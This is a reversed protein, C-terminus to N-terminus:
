SLSLDWTQHQIGGCFWISHLSFCCLFFFFCLSLFSFLCHRLIPRISFPSLRYDLALCHCLRFRSLFLHWFSCGVPRLDSFCTSSLNPGVRSILRTAMLPKTVASCLPFLCIALFSFVASLVPFAKVSTVHTNPFTTSASFRSLFATSSFVLSSLLLFSLHTSISLFLSSSRLYSPLLVYSLLYSSLHLFSLVYLSWFTAQWCSLPHSSPCLRTLFSPSYFSLFLILMLFIM